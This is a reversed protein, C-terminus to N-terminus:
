PLNDSIIEFFVDLSELVRISRQSHNTFTYLSVTKDQNSVSFDCNLQFYNSITKGKGKTDPKYVTFLNLRIQINYMKQIGNARIM